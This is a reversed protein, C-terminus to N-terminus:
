FENLYSSIKIRFILAEGIFFALLSSGGYSVFPMPVGMIPVFGITMLINILFQFLLLTNFLYIFYFEEDSQVKFNFQRYFLTFFLMLLVSIGMFGFEEGLVSVIFDTHRTPLFKYQSQTGNLYGKGTLGGSGIAIKSQIIQYGSTKKHEEPNLFSIVRERQYPKLVYNWGVFSGVVASVLIIIIFVMRTRRLFISTLFFSALMFATGLDPQIAIFLFPVGIAAILKLYEKWGITSFRALTRALFLALPIKIFESIQISFFGMKIWSKTNAVLEGTVFQLFLASNLIVYFFFCFRLAQEFKVRFFLFFALVSVGLWLLQKSWYPHNMGRSASYILLVGMLSLALLTLFTSKDFYKYVDRM